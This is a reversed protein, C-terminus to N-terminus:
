IDTEVVPRGNAPAPSPLPEGDEKIMELATALLDQARELAQERTEGWTAGPLGDFWVSVKGDAEQEVTAPYAYRTM